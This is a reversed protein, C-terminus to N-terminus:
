RCSSLHFYSVGMDQLCMSSSEAIHFTLLLQIIPRKSSSAQHCLSLSDKFWGRMWIARCCCRPRGTGM